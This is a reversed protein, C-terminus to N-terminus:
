LEILTMKTLPLPRYITDGFHNIYENEQENWNFGPRALCYENQKTASVVYCYGVGAISSYIIQGKDARDAFRGSERNQTSRRFANCVQNAFYDLQTELNRTAQKLNKAKEKVQAILTSLNEDIDTTSTWGLYHLANLLLTKLYPKEDEKWHINSICVITSILADRQIQEFKKRTYDFTYEKFSNKSLRLFDGVINLCCGKVNDNEYNGTVPLYTFFLQQQEDEIKESKGGFEHILELAILYKTIDTLTLKYDSVKTDKFLLDHHFYGYLNKFFNKLKRKDAELIKLPVSKEKRVENEDNGSINSIDEEQEDTRIDAELDLSQTHALKLADLVRLSPSLLLANEHLQSNPEIPKYGSLDYLQSQDATKKEEKENLKNKSTHIVSTGDEKESEDIIAYHILDLVNRLEGSQLQGCLRELEANKPNPHTKAITFYNSVIIKNSLNKNGDISKIQVYRFKNEDIDFNIEHQPKLLEIEPSKIFQNNSDYMAISVPKDFGKSTYLTLTLYNIEAALLKIPFQNNKIIAQEISIKNNATFKSLSKKSNGKLKLGIKELINGKDSKIFLSVEANASNSIGLGASTINASGFLCFEKNNKTKFHLIKAHLKSQQKAGINRCLDLEKWDHFTYKKSDPVETPITGSEDIVVNIQANPFTNKIEELAKGQKDYYPSVATIETIRENATLQKIQQWITTQETNYLFAAQENNPLDLFQFDAAKPLEMLWQSHEAVWRTTKESAIGKTTASLKSIYSWAASFVPANQPQKIDFHYAGWIEDNSGNGSNTLNGSGVLLLGENEGFLFWIKPHFINKEFIPYLSYGTALKMEDGTAQQMLESYFHGDIFVNVNRVGCSRLWKM